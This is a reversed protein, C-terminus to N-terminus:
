QSLMLYTRGGEYYTVSNWPAGVLIDSIGDGNIDGSSISSGAVEDQVNGVFSHQIDGLPINTEENLQNSLAMYVKGVYLGDANIYQNSSIAIDSLGDRNADHISIVKMGAQDGPKEGTFRYAAESLSFTQGDSIQKGLVLYVRGTSEDYGPAGILFDAKGDGDSDKTIAVSYGAYDESVEGEFVVSSATDLDINSQAVIDSGLMLYARDNYSGLLLDALGDGDIDEGGGCEIHQFEEESDVTFHHDATELSKRQNGTVSKGLILYGKRSSAVFFDSLGDGDVDGASCVPTGAYDDAEEGYWQYDADEVSLIRTDNLSRGLFLYVEGNLYLDGFRSFSSVIIDPKGDGDVDGAGSVSTGSEDYENSGLIIYDANNASINPESLLTKGFFIYSSGAQTDSDDNKPAGVIIDELGDQDLDGISNISYGFLNSTGQGDIIVSANTLYIETNC